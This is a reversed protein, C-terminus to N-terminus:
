KDWFPPTVIMQISTFYRRAAQHDGALQAAQAALLGTLQPADLLRQARIAQKRAAEPEGASVAM